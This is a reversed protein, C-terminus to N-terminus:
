LRPIPEIAPRSQDAIPPQTASAIPEDEPLGDDRLYIARMPRERSERWNGSESPPTTSIWVYDGEVNTPANVFPDGVSKWAYGYM